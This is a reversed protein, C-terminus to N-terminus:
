LADHTLVCNLTPTPGLPAEVNSSTRLSLYCCQGMWSSDEGRYKHLFRDIRNIILLRQWEIQVHPFKASEWRGYRMLYARADMTHGLCPRNQMIPEHATGKLLHKRVFFPRTGGNTSRTLTENVPLGRSLFSPFKM